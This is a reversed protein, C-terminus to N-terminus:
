EFSKNPNNKTQVADACVTFNLDLSQVENGSEESILFSIKFNKKEGALLVDDAAQVNEKTFENALSTYLVRDGDKVTVIIKNSLGGKIEDFYIKYYVNDTSKNEIFFEKEIEVGPELDMDKSQIISKGDNLNIEVTGTGFIGGDVSVASYVLAITTIVLCVAIIIITIIGGTLRRATKSNSM